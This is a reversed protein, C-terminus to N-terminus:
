SSMLESMLKETTRYWATLALRPAFSPLVEHEIRESSFVVLRNLLPEVELPPDVNLRLQGGHAPQWDRNLYLLATIRRSSKGPLADLHRVYKAGNGPYFGLQTQFGKLGLYLSANLDRMLATFADHPPSHDLFATFDGRVNLDVEGQRGFSAPKLQEVQAVAFTYAERIENEPLFSPRVFYGKTALAEAEDDPLGEPVNEIKVQAGHRSM